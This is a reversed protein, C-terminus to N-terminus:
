LKVIPIYAYNRHPPNNYEAHCSYEIQVNDNPNQMYGSEKAAKQMIQSEAYYEYPAPNEKGLLVAANKDNLLRLWLGGSQVFM